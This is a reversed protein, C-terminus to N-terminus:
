SVDTRNSILNSTVAQEASEIDFEFLFDNSASVFSIKSFKRLIESTSISTM